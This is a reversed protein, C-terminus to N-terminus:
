RRRKLNGAEKIIRKVRGRSIIGVLLNSYNKDMPEEKFELYAANFSKEIIKKNM